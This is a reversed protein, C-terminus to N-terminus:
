GAEYVRIFSVNGAGAGVSRIEGSAASTSKGTRWKKLPAHEFETHFAHDLKVM